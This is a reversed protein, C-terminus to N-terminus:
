SAMSTIREVHDSPSRQQKRPETAHLGRHTRPNDQRDAAHSVSMSCQAHRNTRLDVEELRM